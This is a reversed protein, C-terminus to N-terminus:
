KDSLLGPEGMFDAIIAANREASERGHLYFRELVDRDTEFRSIHMDTPRLILLKGARELESTKELQASYNDARALLLEYLKPYKRKYMASILPKFKRYDTGKEGQPRTLIVLAKDCGKAFARGHPIAEGVSGDLYHYGGIEVPKCLMPVSCSAKIIDLLRAEDRSESLYETEGTDCNVAAYETESESAFYRGFDFPYQKYCFENLMRDLNIAKGSRLLERFGIYENEPEPCIVYKTRGAQKSTFNAANGGGASVGVVYPFSVQRELLVDLLGATFMGRKAGGELVLGIKM